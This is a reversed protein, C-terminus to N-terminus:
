QERRDEQSCKKMRNIFSRAVVKERGMRPERQNRQQDVNKGRYAFV